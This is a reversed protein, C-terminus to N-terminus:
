SYLIINANRNKYQKKEKRNRNRKKETEKGTEKEIKINHTYIIGFVDNLM